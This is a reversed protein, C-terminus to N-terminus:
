PEVHATPQHGPLAPVVQDQLQDLQDLPIHCYIRSGSDTTRWPPAERVCIEPDPLHARRHCRTHFPCGSPLNIPSPIDGELIIPTHVSAPDPVPVASLLAETYPHYPPALLQDTRGVEMLQGLYLVAVADALYSVVALNHSIFLYASQNEEQLETLLKLIAAQVSVDLGSVSEDLLLLDPQSAFARAIAVRQKEGGSLQNPMREAYMPNLKVANLLREVAQDAEARSIGALRMLPRRLADGVRMYPNLADDPSQLVMQLRRLTQPDRAALTPALPIDLLDIEGGDREILGMICRAVTSKGSGSEGVLGLTEGRQIQLDLGNVARVQQAPQRTIWQALSRGVPFGKNLHAIDLITEAEASARQSADSSAPPTSMIGAQMEEWRHCRVRRGAAEAGTTVATVTVTTVAPREDHCRDVAIPCRPAFVCGKPLADLPPIHGPIPQLELDHKRFGLRPVSNLLTQTYPHLPRAFLEDVAADEVVVGGYLVAVRDCVQAVVGLNHTVFLVATGSRALLERVLELIAAETTVDLNTTPEDMVLLSPEGGLAMAILVRQQQGGSLQHPYSSRIREPDALRVQSLLTVVREDREAQSLSPELAEAMQEGIRLSPNLSALPNQPILKLDRQWLPRMENRSLTTLERGRLQISGQRIAGNESLYNMLALALTSKGSGSEGVLGYIEGARLELSADRVAELSRKGQRYAVTLNEVQM